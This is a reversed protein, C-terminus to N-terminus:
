QKEYVRVYNVTQGEASTGSATVTLSKGDRAVALRRTVTAKGDIADSEELTSADIRRYIRMTKQLTGELPYSKGDFAARTTTRTAQGQSNVGEVTFAFGNATPEFKLTGSKPLPALNDKSKGVNLKWTGAFPGLENSQGVVSVAAALVAVVVFFKRTV